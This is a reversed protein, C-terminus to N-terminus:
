QGPAQEPTEPKKKLPQMDKLHKEFLGRFSSLLRKEEQGAAAPTPPLRLQIYRKQPKRRIENIRLRALKEVRTRHLGTGHFLDMTPISLKTILTRLPPEVNGSPPLADIMALNLSRQTGAQVAYRSSWYAGSGVGILIFRKAEKSELHALGSEIREFISEAFSDYDVPPATGEANNTRTPLPPMPEEPVAISLTKWGQDPLRTRLAHILHPWDPSTRDHHLIIAGGVPKPDNAPQYLGLFSEKQTELWLPETEPSQAKALLALSQQEPQPLLRTNTDAPPTSAPQSPEQTSQQATAFGTALLTAILIWLLPFGKRLSPEKLHYASEQQGPLDKATLFGKANNM